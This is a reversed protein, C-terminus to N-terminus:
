FRGRHAIKRRLHKLPFHRVGAEVVRFGPLAEGFAPVPSVRDALDDIGDNAASEDQLAKVLVRCPFIFGQGTFKSRDGDFGSAESEFLCLVM